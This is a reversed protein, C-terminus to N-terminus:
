ARPMSEHRLCRREVRWAFYSTLVLVLAVVPISVQWAPTGIALLSIIAAIVDFTLGAYAWERLARPVPALIAVVGALQATGLMVSFYEPYGLHSFVEISSETRLLASVGGFTWNLAILITPIWYTLNSKFDHM